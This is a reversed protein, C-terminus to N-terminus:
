VVTALLKAVDAVPYLKDEAPCPDALYQTFCKAASRADGADRYALGLEVL